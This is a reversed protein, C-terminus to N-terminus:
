TKHIQRLLPTLLLLHSSSAEAMGGYDFSFGSFSVDGYWQQVPTEKDFRAIREEFSEIKPSEKDESAIPSSPPQLNLHTRIKKVSKTIKRRERREHQARVDTDHQSKCMGFLLSFIKQIPSPHKDRSQGRGRAARPPPSCPTVARREEVPARLDNKIQLPHHEKNYGFTQGTVREIMHM